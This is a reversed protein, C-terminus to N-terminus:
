YPQNYLRKNRMTNLIQQSPQVGPAYPAPEVEPQGVRGWPGRGPEVYRDTGSHDMIMDQLRKEEFMSRQTLYPNTSQQHYPRTGQYLNAEDPAGYWNEGIGNNYFESTKSRDRPPTLGGTNNIAQGWRPDAGSMREM